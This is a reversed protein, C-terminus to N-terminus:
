RHTKPCGPTDDLPLVASESEAQRPEFGQVGVMRSVQVFERVPTKIKLEEQIEADPSPWIRFRIPEGAAMAIDAVLALLVERQHEPPQDPLREVGRRISLMRTELDVETMRASALRGEMQDILGEVAHIETTMQEVRTQIVDAMVKGLAMADILRNLQERLGDRKRILDAREEVLLESLSANKALEAAWSRVLPGASQTLQALLELVLREWTEAPLEKALCGGKRSKNSCRYYPYAKGQKGTGTVCLLPSGCLGCRGVGQLIYVRDAGAGVRLPLREGFGPRNAPRRRRLTEQVRQWTAEDVLQGIYSRRGLLKSVTQRSWSRRHASPVEKANLWDALESLSSGDLCRQWLSQVFPAWEPNPVLQRRGRDGIVRMGAPVPGGIFAGRSRCHAMAMRVRESISEREFQAISGIVNVMLRGTLSSTDIQENLAILKVDHDSFLKVCNLLDSLSRTLRDIRYICVGDIRRSRILDMLRKAGPRDLNKGSFGGDTIVQIQEPRIGRMALMGRCQQEQAELSVGERAQSDTSVRTYIVWLIDAPTIAKLNM